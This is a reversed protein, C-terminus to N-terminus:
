GAERATEARTILTFYYGTKDEGTMELRGSAITCERVAHEHQDRGWNVAYDWHHWRHKGTRLNTVRIRSGRNDTPGYYATKYTTIM